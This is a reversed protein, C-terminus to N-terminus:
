AEFVYPMERSDETTAPYSFGYSGFPRCIEHLVLSKARLNASPEERESSDYVLLRGFGDAQIADKVEQIKEDSTMQAALRREIQDKTLGRNILRNEQDLPSATTVVVHNNCMKLYGAEVLLAGNLLIIGQKRGIEKRVRTMIPVRLMENLEQRAFEDNFVVEGLSKRTLKGLKFHERIEYRLDVYVQETRVQEDLIGHAIKDLDINHVGYYDDPGGIRRGNSLSESLTSKGTAISGTVGVILQPILLEMAQKVRIPVYEHLLGQHLALERVASSSVHSLEERAILIHTDIGRQQTISIQHLMTEYDFDKAGPRVGKVVFKAGSEYAYDALLGQFTVVEVRRLKLKEVEKRIMLARYDPDFLGKKSSNYGVAVILKDFASAARKIIDLHGFTM